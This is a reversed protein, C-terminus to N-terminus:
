SAVGGAPQPAPVAGDVPRQEPAGPLRFVLRAGGHPSAVAETSGAHRSAVQQVISLGLGSGPMSRSEESRYFREFVHPLDEPAIGPGEDDVVVAGEALRVIVHAGAPGRQSLHDIRDIHARAM